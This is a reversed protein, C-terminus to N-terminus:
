ALCNMMRELLTVLRLRIVEQKEYVRNTRIIIRLAEIDFLKCDDFIFISTMSFYFGFTIFFILAFISLYKSLTSSRQCFNGIRFFLM